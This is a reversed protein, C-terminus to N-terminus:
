REVTITYGALSTRLANAGDAVEHLQVQYGALESLDPVDFRLVSGTSLDGFIAIRHTTTNPSFSYLVLDTETEIGSIAPGYLTFRIAADGPQASVFRVTLTGPGSLDTPGDGCSITALAAVLAAVIRLHGKM